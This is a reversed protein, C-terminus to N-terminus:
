MRSELFEHLAQNVDDAKELMLFHGSDIKKLHFDPAYSRTSLEARMPTGVPDKSATLLLVPKTFNTASAPIAATVMLAELRDHQKNESQLVHKGNEDDLNLDRYLARYHNLAPEYGGREAAFIRNHIEEEQSTILM